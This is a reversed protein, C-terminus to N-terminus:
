MYNRAVLKKRKLINRSNTTLSPEGFQFNKNSLQELPLGPFGFQLQQRIEFQLSVRKQEGWGGAGGGM